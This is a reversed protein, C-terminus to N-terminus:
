LHESKISLNKWKIRKATGTHNTTKTGTSIEANSQRKLKNTNQWSRYSLKETLPQTPWKPFIWPPKNYVIKHNGQFIITNRKQEHQSHMLPTCPQPSSNKSNSTQPAWLIMYSVPAISHPQNTSQHFPTAKPPDISFTEM